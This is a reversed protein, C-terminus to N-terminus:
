PYKASGVQKCWCLCHALGMNRLPITVGPFMSGFKQNSFVVSNITWNRAKRQLHICHLSLFSHVVPTGSPTELTLSVNTKGWGVWSSLGHVGKFKSSGIISDAVGNVASLFFCLLVMDQSGVGSVSFNTPIWMGDGDKIGDMHFWLLGVFGFIDQAFHM